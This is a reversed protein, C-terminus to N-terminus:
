LLAEQIFPAGVDESIGVNSDSAEETFPLEQVQSHRGSDNTVMVVGGVYDDITQLMKMPTALLLQFGFRRFVELGAQTFEHDAKDFAEDIVVLAFSPESRGAPALQYRLAAALCFTVLKQREGGSRGGSGTYVDLQVGETDVVRAQFQVHQRTDLCRERWSRHAPDSSGLRTLLDRMLAFRQEAAAREEPSDGVALDLLSGSTIANLTGLFSEVDPLARERVDIQLFGGASFETLRLSKNVEDVRTRTERRAGQIKQKLQSINNRAQRQLLDFFRQEFRPLGDGELAALRELYEPLYEVTDAWDASQAPWQANYARLHRVVRQAIANLHQDAERRRGVLRERLARELRDARIGLEIAQSDLREAVPGPIPDAEALDAELSEIRRELDAVGKALVDLRSALARRVREADEKKRTARALAAELEPLEAHDRRLRELRAEASALRDSAAAVDVEDWDIRELRAFADRRALRDADRRGLEDLDRVAEEEALRALSALRELEAEKLETSFGLVWRTRDDVRGRDDKEHRVASHKVQGARTVAREHRAFDASREVCAYDFRRALRDAVWGAYPGDALEVKGALSGEDFAQEDPRPPPAAVREYVLRSGLHTADIHEAAAVYHAAPIVLTRAFSGLVREIAGTWMAEAARVQILEGVFPLTAEAVQLRDALSARAELLRPDLNSRHTRLATLERERQALVAHAERRRDHAGLKATRHGEQDAEFATAAEALRAAFADAGTAEGPWGLGVTAADEAVAAYKKEAGALQTRRADILLELTGLEAGASGDLARQADVRADEARGVEDSARELEGALAAMRPRESELSREAEALGRAALWDGLHREEAALGAIADLAEDHLAGLDRLPALAEVQRRADVVANHALSLEEFQQVTENALDFTDPEDLMFDRFLSDLNTLNKASQTKHLLLQAQESGLGLRRRFKTAFSTYADAGACVWDPHDRQLRRNEVGDRAYPALAALDVAEPAMAYLSRLDAGSTTGARLHFLRILTTLAGRGDDFTLAVGSWVPGKRLYATGVEGTTGDTERKYAGLVYTVLSRERDGTETGQAAANFKQKAPRVLLAGIADLVSSKGAGSPGTLLLGRRPVGFSRYGDFTGWNVLQVRRLRQQSM